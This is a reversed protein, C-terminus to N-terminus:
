LYLTFKYIELSIYKLLQMKELEFIFDIYTSFYLSIIFISCKCYYSTSKCASSRFVVDIMSSNFNETSLFLKNKKTQIFKM